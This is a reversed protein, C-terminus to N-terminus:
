IILENKIYCQFFIYGQPLIILVKKIVGEPLSFLVEGVFTQSITNEDVCLLMWVFEFKIFLNVILLNFVNSSYTIKYHAALNGIFCTMMM